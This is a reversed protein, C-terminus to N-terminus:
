SPSEQESNPRSTQQSLGRVAEALQDNRSKLLQTLAAVEQLQPMDVPVYIDVRVNLM